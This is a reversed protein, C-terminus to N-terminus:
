AWRGTKRRRSKKQRLRLKLKKMEKTSPLVALTPIGGYMNIDEPTRPRDDLVFLLTLLGAALVSGLLFGKILASTKSQVRAISPVLAISFDSPEEGRMTNIIFEKAAKAYANAIDAATQADFYTATIYLLRTDEPNYVSIFSQMAEYSYPLNLEERVMEHVEWTKFVEQYDLTLVTGLQLDTINISASNPNVIYLKATASYTPVSQSARYGFLGAAIIATLLVIWFKEIIYFILGILDITKPAANYGQRAGGPQDSANQGAQLAQVVATVTNVLQPDPQNQNANRKYQEEQM